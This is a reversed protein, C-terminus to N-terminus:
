SSTYRARRDLLEKVRAKDKDFQASVQARQEEREKIEERQKVIQGEIIRLNEMLDESVPLGGRELDAAHTEASTKQKQLRDLNEQRVAIAGDLARLKRKRAREVDGVSRYLRMLEKDTARQEELRREEAEQKALEADRIKKEAPTLERPVVKIVRGEESLVTYGKHVYEPPVHQDYVIKGDDNEYRYLNAGYASAWSTLALALVLARPFAHATQPLEMEMLSVALPPPRM